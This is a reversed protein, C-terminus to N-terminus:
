WESLMESDLANKKEPRSMWVTRVPGNKEVIVKSM